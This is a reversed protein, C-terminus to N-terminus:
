DNPLERKVAQIEGEIRETETLLYAVSIALYWYWGFYHLVAQRAHRLQAEPAPDMEPGTPALPMSGADVGAKVALRLATRADPM